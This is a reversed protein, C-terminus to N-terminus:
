AGRVQTFFNIFPKTYKVHFRPEIFCFSRLFTAKVARNYCVGGPGICKCALKQRLAYM